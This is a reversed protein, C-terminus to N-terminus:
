PLNWEGWGGLFIEAQATRKKHTAGGTICVIKGDKNLAEASTDGSTRHDKKTEM